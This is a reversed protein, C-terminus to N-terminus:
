RPAPHSDSGGSPQTARPGSARMGDRTVGGAKGAMFGTMSLVAAFDPAMEVSPRAGNALLAATAVARCRSRSRAM